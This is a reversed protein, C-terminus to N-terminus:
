YHSHSIFCGVIKTLDFNLAKKVEMLPYGCDLILLEGDTDIIYGNGKSGTGICIMRMCDGGKRKSLGTTVNINKGSKLIRILQFLVDTNSTWIEM